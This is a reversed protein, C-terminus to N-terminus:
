ADEHRTEEPQPPVYAIEALHDAARRMTVLFPESPDDTRALEHWWHCGTKEGPFGYCLMFRFHETTVAIQIKFCQRAKPHVTNLSAGKNTVALKGDQLLKKFARHVDAESEWGAGGTFPTHHPFTIFRERM